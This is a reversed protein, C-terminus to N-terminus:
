GLLWDEAEAATNFFRIPGRRNSERILEQFRASKIAQLDAVVATQVRYNSLKLLLAGALGTSLDFFNPHLHAEDLVLRPTEMEYGYGLLDLVGQENDISASEPTCRLYSGGTREVVEGIIM